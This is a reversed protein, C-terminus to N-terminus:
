KGIRSKHKDLSGEGRSNKGDDTVIYGCGRVLGDDNVDAVSQNRHITEWAKRMRVCVCVCVAWLSGWVCVALVQGSVYIVWRVSTM